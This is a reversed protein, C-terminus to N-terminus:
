SSSLLEPCHPLKPKNLHRNRRILTHDSKPQSGTSSFSRLGYLKGPFYGWAKRCCGLSSEKVIPQITSKLRSKGTFGEGAHASSPNPLLSSPHTDCPLTLLCSCSSACCGTSNTSKGSVCM